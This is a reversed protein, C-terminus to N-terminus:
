RRQRTREKSGEGLIDIGCIPRVEIKDDELKKETQNRRRRATESRKLALESETIQAKKSEEAM